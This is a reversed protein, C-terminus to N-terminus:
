IARVRAVAADLGGGDNWRMFAEYDERARDEDFVRAYGEDWEAKGAAPHMHEIIVDPMYRLVGAGAGVRKWGDDAWQHRTVPLALWGLARYVEASMFVATPHNRRQLLDDAYAIGPTELAIALARDWRPTRFIVDDGFAGLVDYGDFIAEAAHNLAGTFGAGPPTVWVPLELERYRDLDPDDADVLVLFAARPATARISDVCRRANVPRGRSPVLVCVKM